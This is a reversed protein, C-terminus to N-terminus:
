GQKAKVLNCRSLLLLKDEYRSLSLFFRQVFSFYNGQDTARETERSDSDYVVLKMIVIVIVIILRKEFFGSPGEKQQQRIGIGIGICVASVYCM